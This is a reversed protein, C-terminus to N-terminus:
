LSKVHCVLGGQHRRRLGTTQLAIRRVPKTVDSWRCCIRKKREGWRGMRSAKKRGPRSDEKASAGGIAAWFKRARVRMIWPAQLCAFWLCYRQHHRDRSECGRWATHAAFSMYMRCNRGPVSRRDNIGSHASLLINTHNIRAQPFKRQLTETNTPRRPGCQECRLDLLSVCNVYLQGGGGGEVELGRSYKGREGAGDREAAAYGMGWGVYEGVRGEPKKM